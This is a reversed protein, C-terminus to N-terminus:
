PAGNENRGALATLFAGVQREADRASAEDYYHAHPGGLLTADDFAHDANAYDVLAVDVGERKLKAAADRCEQPSVVSDKGATFM